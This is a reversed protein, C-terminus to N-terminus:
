NSYDLLTWTDKQKDHIVNLEIERDPDYNGSERYTQFSEEVPNGKNKHLNKWIFILKEYMYNQLLGNAKAVVWSSMKESLFRAAFM